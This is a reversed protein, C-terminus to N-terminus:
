RHRRCDSTMCKHTISSTREQPDPAGPQEAEASMRHHQTRRTIIRTCWVRLLTCAADNQQSRAHSWSALGERLPVLRAKPRTENEAPWLRRTSYGDLCSRLAPQGSVTVVGPSMNGVTCICYAAMPGTRWFSPQRPKCLGLPSAGSGGCPMIRSQDGSRHETLMTLTLTHSIM